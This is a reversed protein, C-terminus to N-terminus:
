PTTIYCALSTNYPTGLLSIRTLKVKGKTKNIKSEFYLYYPIWSLTSQQKVTTMFVIVRKSSLEFFLVFSRNKILPDLFQEYM